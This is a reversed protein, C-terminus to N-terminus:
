EKVLEAVQKGSVYGSPKGETAQRTVTAMGKRMSPPVLLELQTGAAELEHRADEVRANLANFPIVSVIAIGLGFATAILAEAIGGTIAGPASLEGGILSFSGMMGTVTGMLGLLPALTIITDLVPIGRRYRELERDRAYSLANALLEEKHRLAYALSRLVYFKSKDALILAEALRNEQVLKFFENLAKRNRRVRELLLFCVRDLVTALSLISAILLPWMIPGGKVFIHILSTKKMLAKLAAGRSPDLPLFGEGTAMLTALGAQLKGELPRILPKTSGSQPVVLGAQKGDSSRFLAVPGVMAFQGQLVTSQLDVAEGAFRLGGIADFLRTISKSVFQLQREFKEGTSLSTNSSAQKAEEISKGVYQLECVNVKSEYTRAFEDLLNAIYALEDQRAKMETKLNATELNGADLLRTVDAHDKRLQALKEELRSLEEALPIKEKAIQDRLADLEQVTKALDQEASSSLKGVIDPASAPQQAWASLAVGFVVILSIITKM